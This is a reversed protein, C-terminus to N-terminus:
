PRYHYEDDDEYGEKTDIVLDPRFKRGNEYGYGRPNCVVRTRGVTYDFSTHTHGHIWLDPQRREILDSLDSCFAPTLRHGRFQPAISNPHPCHHTVVVTTGDFPEALADDIYQRTRLHLERAHRPKFRQMNGEELDISVHDSMGRQAEMLAYVREAEGYLDYDTWLTGGVFRVDDLVTSDDILLDIDFREAVRRAWENGSDIAQGYYDHNGMVFVVRMHRRIADAIWVLGENGEDVADGAIVAVDAEPIDGFPLERGRLERPSLHLDSVIWLRM